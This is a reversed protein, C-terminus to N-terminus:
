HAPRAHQGLDLEFRDDRGDGGLRRFDDDDVRDLGRVGFRQGRRRAADRLHAFARRLQRPERLLAVDDDDEDAVHRLFARDGARAHELVDDVGDEVELAVRM